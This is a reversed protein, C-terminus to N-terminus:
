LSRILRRIRFFLNNSYFINRAKDNLPLESFLIGIFDGKLRKAESAILAEIICKDDSCLQDIYKDHFMDLAKMRKSFKTSFEDFDQRITISNGSHVRWLCAVDDQHVVNLKDIFRICLDMWTDENPLSRPIDLLYKAAARDIMISAGSPNGQGKKKPILMGDIKKDESMVQIKSVLVAPSAINLIKQFRNFLSNTPMIDDGAFFALYDGNAKSCGYLFADVKGRGTNKFVRLRSDVNSMDTLIDFTSDTSYDDVVIVELEVSAQALISDLAEAIFEEENKVM